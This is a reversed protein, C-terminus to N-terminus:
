SVAEHDFLASEIEIASLKYGSKKIIDQSLRGM